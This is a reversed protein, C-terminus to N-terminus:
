PAGGNRGESSGPSTPRSLVAGTRRDTVTGDPYTITPGLVRVAREIEPEDTTESRSDRGLAARAQDARTTGGHFLDEPDALPSALDGADWTADVTGMTGMTGTEGQPLPRTPRSPRSTDPEPDPLRESWEQLIRYPRVVTSNRNPGSKLRLWDEGRRLGLERLAKSLGKSTLRANVGTVVRRRNFEALLDDVRLETEPSPAPALAAIAERVEAEVGFEEVTSRAALIEHIGEDLSWGMMDCTLLLIAAIVHDRGTKGSMKAVRARFGASKWQERVRELPWEILAQAAARGLSARIPALILEKEEADLARDVSTDPEMDVVISRGLLHGSPGAHTDYVKPGFISRNAVEWGRGGAKPVMFGRSVGRRYGNRITGEIGKNKESLSDWEEIGIARGEDLVSALYADSADSLIVGNPTLFICAEVATGKGAGTKGQFALYFTSNFRAILHTHAAWIVILTAHVPKKTKVVGAVTETTKSLTPRTAPVEATAGYDIGDCKLRRRRAVVHIAAIATRQNPAWESYTRVM